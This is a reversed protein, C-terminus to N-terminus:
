KASRKGEEDTKVSGGVPQKVFLPQATADSAAPAHSHGAGAGPHCELTLGGEPTRRAVTESMFQGDLLVLKNGNPLDVIRPPAATVGAEPSSMKAAEARDPGRLEGTEPDKVVRLGASPTAGGSAQGEPVKIAGPAPGDKKSEAKDTTPPKSPEKASQAASIGVWGSASISIALLIVAHRWDLASEFKTM